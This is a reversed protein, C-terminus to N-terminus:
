QLINEIVPARAKKNHEGKYNKTDLKQNLVLNWDGTWLAYDHTPFTSQNFVHQQYFEPDDRNPSYLAIILYKKDFATLTLLSLNGLVINFIEFIKATIRDKIFIAIGRANSKLSNFECVGKWKKKSANSTKLGQEITLYFM